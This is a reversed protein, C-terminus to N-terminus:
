SQDDSEGEQRDRMAERYGAQFANNWLVEAWNEMGWSRARTKIDQPMHLNAYKWAMEADGNRKECELKKAFEIQEKTPGMLGALMKAQDIGM